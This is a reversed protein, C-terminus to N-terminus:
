NIDCFDKVPFRLNHNELPNVADHTLLLLLVEPSNLTCSTPEQCENKCTVLLNKIYAPIKLCQTLMQQAIALFAWSCSLPAMPLMDFPLVPVM